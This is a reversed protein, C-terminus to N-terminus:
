HRLQFCSLCTGLLRGRKRAAIVTDFFTWQDWIPENAGHPSWLPSARKLWEDDKDLITYLLYVVREHIYPPKADGRVLVGLTESSEVAHQVCDGGSEEEFGLHTLNPFSTLSPLHLTEIKSMPSFHLHTVSPLVLHQFPKASTFYTLPITLDRLNQLRDLGRVSPAINFCNDHELWLSVLDSCTEFITDFAHLGFRVGYVHLHRVRRVPHESDGLLDEFRAFKLLPFGLPSQELPSGAM